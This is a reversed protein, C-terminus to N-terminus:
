FRLFKLIADALSDEHAREPAIKRLEKRISEVKEPEALIHVNPRFSNRIDIFLEGWKEGERPSRISFSKIDSAHIIKLNSIRIDTNTITFNITAPDKQSWILLLIVSVALFIAFLFNDSWLAISILILSATTVLYYWGTGRTHNEYEPAEWSLIDM